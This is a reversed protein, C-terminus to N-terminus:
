SRRLPKSSRHACTLVFLFLFYCFFFRFSLSLSRSCLSLVTQLFFITSATHAYFFSFFLFHTQLIQARSLTHPYTSNNRSQSFAIAIACLQMFAYSMTRKRTYSLNTHTTHTLAKIRKTHTCKHIHVSSMFGSVSECM